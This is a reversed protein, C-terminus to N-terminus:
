ARSSLFVFTQYGIEGLTLLGPWVALAVVLTQAVINRAQYFFNVFGCRSKARSYRHLTFDVASHNVNTLINEQEYAEATQALVTM